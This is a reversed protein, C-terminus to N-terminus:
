LHCVPLVPQLQQVHHQERPSHLQHRKRSPTKFAAPMISRTVASCAIISVHGTLLWGIRVGQQQQQQQQQQQLYSKSM